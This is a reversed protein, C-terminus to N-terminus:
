GINAARSGLVQLMLADMFFKAAWNPYRWTMYDADIPHSGKVGGDRNMDGSDWEHQGINFTNAAIAHDALAAVGTEQALRFWNIAMQANGTLCTWRVKPRWDSGLYGPLAGDTRQAAAVQLAMRLAHDLYQQKKLM